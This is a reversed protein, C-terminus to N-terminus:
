PLPRVWPAIEYRYYRLLQVEREETITNNLAGLSNATSDGRLLLPDTAVENPLGGHGANDDIRAANGPASSGLSLLVDLAIEYDGKLPWSHLNISTPDGLNTDSSATKPSTSDSRSGTSIPNEIGSGVTETASTLLSEASKAPSLVQRPEIQISPRSTSLFRPTVATNSSTSPKEGTTEPESDM